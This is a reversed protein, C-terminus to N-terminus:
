MAIEMTVITYIHIDCSVEILYGLTPSAGSAWYASLSLDFMACTHFKNSCEERFHMIVSYLLLLIYSTFQSYM